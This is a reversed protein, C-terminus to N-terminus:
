LTRFLYFWRKRLTSLDPIPMSLKSLFEAVKNDQISVPQVAFSKVGRVSLQKLHSIVDSTLRYIKEIDGDEPFCLQELHTKSGLYRMPESGRYYPDWISRIFIYLHESPVYLHFRLVHYKAAIKAGLAVGSLWTYFKSVSDEHSLSKCSAVIPMKQFDRLIAGYGEGVSGHIRISLYMEEFQVRSRIADDDHLDWIKRAREIWEHKSLSHIDGHADVEVKERGLFNGCLDLYLQTLRQLSEAQAVMKHPFQLASHYCPFVM